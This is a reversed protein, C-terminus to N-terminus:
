RWTACSAIPFLERYKSVLNLIWILRGTNEIFTATHKVTFTSETFLTQVEGDHRVLELIIKRMGELQM